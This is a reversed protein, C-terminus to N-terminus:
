NESSIEADWSSTFATLPLLSALPNKPNWHEKLEEYSIMLRNM